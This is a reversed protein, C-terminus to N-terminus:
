LSLCRPTAAKGKSIIEIARPGALSKLTFLARFRQALPTESSNLLKDLPTYIDEEEAM